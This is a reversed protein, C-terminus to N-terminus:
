QCKLYSYVTKPNCLSDFLFSLSSGLFLDTLGNLDGRRIHFIDNLSAAVDPRPALSVIM